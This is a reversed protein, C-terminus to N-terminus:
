AVRKGTAVSYSVLSPVFRHNMTSVALSAGTPSCAAGVIGPASVVTRVAGGPSVLRVTTPQEFPARTSVPGAAVAYLDAHPSWGFANGM